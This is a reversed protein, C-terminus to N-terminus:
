NISAYKSSSCDKNDRVIANWPSVGAAGLLCHFGGIWPWVVVMNYKM